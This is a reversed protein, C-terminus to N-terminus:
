EGPNNFRRRSRVLALTEGIAKWYGTLDRFKTGSQRSTNAPTARMRRCSPRYENQAFSTSRFRGRASLLLACVCHGQFASIGCLVAGGLGSAYMHHLRRAAFLKRCPKVQVTSKDIATGFAAGTVTVIRVKGALRNRRIQGARCLQLESRRRHQGKGLIPRSASISM